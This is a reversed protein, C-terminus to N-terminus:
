ESRCLKALSMQKGRAIGGAQPNGSGLKVGKDKLTALAEKTRQSIRERVAPSAMADKTRVSIMHREKEALAAFLHLMFPDSTRGLDCAVFEVQQIMLGSIFHVDRSLRDLKSILILHGSERAVELARKLVPRDDLTDSVRKGSKVETLWETVTLSEQKAFREISVRQADLGLGSRGQEETSVRMYAIASQM